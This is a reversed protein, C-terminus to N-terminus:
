IQQRLIRCVDDEGIAPTAGASAAVLAGVASARALAEQPSAEAFLEALLTGLFADGCGVTDVVDVDFADQRYCVGDYLLLAGADGLTVCVLALEYRNVLARAAEEVSDSTGQWGAILALETENVKAWDAHQLLSEIVPRDGHPPRVNVDFVRLSAKELLRFLSGRSVDHRAALSGFVLVDATRDIKRFYEDADIFDWAVPMVIDFVPAAPDATDVEVIGTPQHEDVQVSETSLGKDTMFALLERGQPDAGVRSLLRVELGSHALRLAVNMPAGSAVRGSPLMDWLAEGFCLIAPKTHM